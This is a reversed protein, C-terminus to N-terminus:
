GSIINILSHKRPNSLVCVLLWLSFHGLLFNLYLPPFALTFTLLLWREPSQWDSALQRIIHFVWILLICQALIWVYFAYSLPAWALPVFLVATHPPYTFPLLGESFSRGGLLQQQYRAQLALDYLQAGLLATLVWIQIAM